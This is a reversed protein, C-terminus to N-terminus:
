RSATKLFTGDGGISIVMDASFDEGDFLNDAYVNIGLESTIFRYFERCVHIEAQREKLIQFLTEAHSSKKAQYTNGIIAFKMLSKTIHTQLNPMKEQIEVKFLLFLVSLANGM